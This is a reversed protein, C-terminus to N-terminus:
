FKINLTAAYTWGGLDIKDASFFQDTPLDGTAKQYRVEGGLDWADGLPFRVGGLVIPGAASGKGEFSAHFIDDNFDIFDGTETYRWVFVGVGAGVYPQVPNSRGFPLFRITATMPVIRLKLDQEIANGFQDEEFTYLSPVTRKYFGIGLGAELFEGLGALYDAGVIGGRFDSVNFAFFDLNNVLVDNSVGNDKIRSDEGNPSFGGFYINLSQQAFAPSALVGSVLVAATLVTFLRRM